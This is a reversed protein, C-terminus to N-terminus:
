IKFECQKRNVFYYLKDFGCDKILQFYKDQELYYNNLQNYFHADSSFSLKKGGYKKYM